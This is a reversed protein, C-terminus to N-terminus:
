KYHEAHKKNKDKQITAIMQKRLLRQTPASLVKARQCNEKRIGFDRSVINNKSDKDNPVNAEDFSSEEIRGTLFMENYFKKVIMDTDVLYHDKDIVGRYTGVIGKIAPIIEDELDVQGNDKFAKVVTDTRFAMSMAKPLKSLGALLAKKKHSALRVIRTSEPDTPEELEAM